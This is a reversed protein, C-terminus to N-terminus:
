SPIEILGIQLKAIERGVANAILFKQGRTLTLFGDVSYGDNERKADTGAKAKGAKVVRSDKTLKYISGAKHFQVNGSVDGGALTEIDSETMHSGKLDNLFQDRTRILKTGDNLAIIHVKGGDKTPVAPSVSIIQFTKM